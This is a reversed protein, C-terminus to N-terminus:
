FGITDNQADSFFRMNKNFKEGSTNNFNKAIAKFRNM